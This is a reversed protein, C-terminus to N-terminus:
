APYPRQRGIGAAPWENNFVEWIELLSNQHVETGCGSAPRRAPGALLEVLSKRQINMAGSFVVDADQIKQRLTSNSPTEVNLDILEFDWEQQPMLAAFTLLGLPPFPTKRGLYKMIYKYSWFSDAPFAPAILLGKKQTM